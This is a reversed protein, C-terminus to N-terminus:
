GFREFSKGAGELVVAKPGADVLIIWVLADAAGNLDSYM